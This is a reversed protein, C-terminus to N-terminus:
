KSVLTNNLPLGKGVKTFSLSRLSIQDTVLLM